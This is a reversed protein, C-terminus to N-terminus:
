RVCNNPAPVAAAQRAAELTPTADELDALRGEFGMARDISWYWRDKRWKITATIRGNKVLGLYSFRGRDASELFGRFEIGEGVHRIWYPAPAFGCGTCAKSWFHGDQFFLVDDIDPDGRPGIKGVFAMGDLPGHAGPRDADDSGAAHGAFLTAATVFVVWFIRPRLLSFRM